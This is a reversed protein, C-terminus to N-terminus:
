IQRIFIYFAFKSTLPAARGRYPDNPKLPNFYHPTSYMSVLTCIHYRASNKKSNSISLFLQLSFRFVYKINQKKGGVGMGRFDHCKKSLTFFHSVSLCAMFPLIVLRMYKAHWFFLALSCVCMCLILYM